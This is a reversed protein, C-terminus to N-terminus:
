SRYTLTVLAARSNINLKKYISNLHTKVTGEEIFLVTAIERNNLGKCIEVVIENERQTLKYIKLYHHLNLKIQHIMQLKFHILIYLIIFADILLLLRSIQSNQISLDIRYITPYQFFELSLYLTMIIAMLVSRIKKNKESILISPTLFLPFLIYQFGADKGFISAFIVIAISISVMLWISGILQKGKSNFILSFSFFLVVIPIAGAFIPLNIWLYFGIYPLPLIVYLLTLYNLLIIQKTLEFSDSYQIGLYRINLISKILKNM